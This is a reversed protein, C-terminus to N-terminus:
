ISWHKQRRSRVLKDPLYVALESVIVTFCGLGSEICGLLKEHAYQFIVKKKKKEFYEKESCKRTHTSINEFYELPIDKPLDGSSSNDRYLCPPTPPFCGHLLPQKYMIKEHKVELM